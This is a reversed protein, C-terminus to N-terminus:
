SIIEGTTRLVTAVPMCSTRIGIALHDINYFHCDLPPYLQGLRFENIYDPYKSNRLRLAPVSAMLDAPSGPAPQLSPAARCAILILECTARRGTEFAQLLLLKWEGTSTTRRRNDIGCIPLGDLSDRGGSNAAVATKKRWHNAEFCREGFVV